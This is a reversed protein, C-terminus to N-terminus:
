RASSITKFHIGDDEKVVMVRMAMIVSVKRCTKELGANNTTSFTMQSSATHTRTTHTLTHTHTWATHTTEISKVISPEPRM